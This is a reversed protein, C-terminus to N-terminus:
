PKFRIRSRVFSGGVVAFLIVAFISSIILGTQWSKPWYWMQLEVEGSPISLARMGNENNVVAVEGNVLAHWGNTYRDAIIIKSASSDNVFKFSLRNPNEEFVLFTPEQGNDLRIRPLTNPLEFLQLNDQSAVLNGPLEEGSLDFWTDVLYYKVAWEKNLAFSPSIEPLNNIGVEESANFRDNVDLPLLTTYGNLISVGAMMNWNPTGAERMRQLHRFTKLEEADVYSNAFPQRLVLSEYYYGFDTFPANYNRSLVRAQTINVDKMVQKLQDGQFSYLNGPAFRFHTASVIALEFSVITLLAWMQRKQVLWLGVVFFILHIFGYMLAQLVIVRNRELTHFQSNSLRNGLQTDVFQWVSNFIQSNALLLFLTLTLVVILGSLWWFKKPFVGAFRELLSVFLLASALTSIMLITSVGRTMSLIPIQSFINLWPLSAILAILVPFIILALLIFDNKQWKKQWVLWFFVPIILWPVFWVANPPKSWSPGWKMGVLGNDFFTPFFVKILDTPLLSGASAQTLNQAERTSEGVTQLFPLWVFATLGLVVVCVIFWHLVRWVFFKTFDKLEGPAQIWFQLFGAVALSYILHQPYGALVQLTLVGVVLLIKKLAFKKIPSNIAVLVLWPFWTLSQLTAINNLSATVFPSFAWLVGALLRLSKNQVFKGALLYMGLTSLVQHILITLNLAVFPEFGLFLLTSPYWLSQNIDGVWSIGTFILPNWFPLVGEKLWQATFLKGPVMLFFNDGFFLSQGFFFPFFRFSVLGIIALLILFWPSLIIKKSSQFFTAFM